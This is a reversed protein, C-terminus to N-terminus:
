AAKSTGKPGMLFDLIKGIYAAQDSRAVVADVMGHDMLYEATQFDEPLKERVTEEIVRRGAFGIIAGPEAIQIDGLMAFSATVGGTTPHALLVIYPLGADRVKDVAVITRPLQMLSLVGEQMRAGGTSPVTILAAKRSVAENAAAIIGNGVMRGMSGGMFRFDFAAIVCPYGNVKGAAVAIADHLGTKSRTDRLRDSYKKSDRFKLPDDEIEPLSIMDFAGDDFTMAFRNAPALPAHHGCTSCCNYAIEFERHFIMQNCASCKVWLNEPVDDSQVWAKIKPLVSNTIWNM